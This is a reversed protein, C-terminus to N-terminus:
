EWDKDGFPDDENDVVSTRVVDDQYFLRTIVIPSLYKKQQM